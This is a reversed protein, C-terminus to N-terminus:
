GLVELTLAASAATAQNVGDGDDDGDIPLAFRQNWWPALTGKM